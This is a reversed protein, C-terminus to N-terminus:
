SEASYHVADIGCDGDNSGGLNPTENRCMVRCNENCFHWGEDEM